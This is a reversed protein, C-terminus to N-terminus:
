TRLPRGHTIVTYYIAKAEKNTLDFVYIVTFQFFTSLKSPKVELAIKSGHLDRYGPEFDTVPFFMKLQAHGWTTVNLM